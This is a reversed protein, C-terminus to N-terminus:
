TPLLHTPVGPIVEEMAMHLLKEAEPDVASLEKFGEEGAPLHMKLSKAVM